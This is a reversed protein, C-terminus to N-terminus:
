LADLAADYSPEQGIDPVLEVHKVTGDPAVVVVARAALAALPGDTIRVGYDSAFSSRFGSLCEVNELGEAGCFRQQAFPLDQSINLVVVGDKSSAKQNFTRVSTACVPTDISPFINLVRTKGAYSELKAPSLDTKTLDFEPAKAGTTPLDGNTHFTNGHLTIEAM